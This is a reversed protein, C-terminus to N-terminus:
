IHIPGYAEELRRTVVDVPDTLIHETGCVSVVKTKKPGVESISTVHNPNIRIAVPREADDVTFHAFM